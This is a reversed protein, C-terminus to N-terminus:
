TAKRVAKNNNKRVYSAVAAIYFVVAPLFSIKCLLYVTQHNLLGYAPNTRFPWFPHIDAYLPSDLLIHFWVGLLASFLMKCFSSQYSIRFLKMLRQLFNKGSYAILAWFFGVAAGGLFTHLYGHLPYNLGFVMVALPEFDVVVNALIFVPIDIYKRLPLAICASPGFHYPTFPM